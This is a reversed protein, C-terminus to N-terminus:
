SVWFISRESSQFSDLNTLIVMGSFEYRGVLNLISTTEPATNAYTIYFIGSAAPDEVLRATKELRIGDPKYFIIKASDVTSVDFNEDNVCDVLKVRWELGFFNLAFRDTM